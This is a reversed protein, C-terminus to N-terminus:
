GNLRIPEIGGIPILGFALAAFFILFLPAFIMLMRGVRQQGEASPDAGPGSARQDRGANLLRYGMAFDTAAVVLGIVLFIWGSM